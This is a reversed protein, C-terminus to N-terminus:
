ELRQDREAARKLYSGAWKRTITNRWKSEIRDKGNNPTGGKHELKKNSTCLFAGSREM